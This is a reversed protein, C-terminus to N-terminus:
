RAAVALDFARMAASELDAADDADDVTQAFSTVAHLVGGATADGGQIFHDLIGAIRQESFRLQQGIVKVTDAANTIPKASDSELREIVRVMYDTDLFTAVADATKATVLELSRRETDESWRIVGEDLKGGVHVERLADRTMKLGNSCVEVVLRPVITFAGGGTESNSLEFGAFVTPNDAGRNGSFPSRYNALLTPALATVEPATIRVYMRRDTLDCGAVNIAVGAQKVGELAATLVDLNDVTRYRDSLFARAVGESGDDDPRFCRLMFSREDGARFRPDNECPTVGEPTTFGHLWGNVNADYLDPAQERLRKLYATPVDLKLAIGEDCIATPRYFGDSTTVGDATLEVETGAVRLVGGDSRITSAPAVVDVKRAQQSTLIAALDALSANRATSTM